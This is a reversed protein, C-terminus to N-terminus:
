GELFLCQFYFTAVSATTRPMPFNYDYEINKAEAGDFFSEIFHFTAPVELTQMTLGNESAEASYTYKYKRRTMSGVNLVSIVNEQCRAARGSETTSGSGSVNVDITM